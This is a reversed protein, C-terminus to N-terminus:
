RLMFTLAAQAATRWNEEKSFGSAKRPALDHDGDPLWEIVCREGMYQAMNEARGGFPDRAGQLILGPVQIGALHETRLKDLKGPPHFPYGFALWGRVRGEGEPLDAALMSAMRGGMSKGALFVEADPSCNELAEAFCNLLKDQRDPPRKKGSDRREQMYPFEFRVVKVGGISIEQAIFSMFDSDMPAGAGHAFLLVKGAQEPGDVMFRM